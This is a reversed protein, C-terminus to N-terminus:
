ASIYVAYLHLVSNVPTLFDYPAGEPTTSWHSFVMGSPPKPNAPRDVQRGLMVSSAWTSRGNRPDFIVSRRNKEEGTTDVMSDAYMGQQLVNAISAQSAIGTTGVVGAVGLTALSSAIITAAILVADDGTFTPEDDGGQGGGAAEWHGYLQMQGGVNSGLDWETGGNPSTFWGLFTYGEMSPNEPPSLLNGGKGVGVTFPDGGNAPYFTVFFVPTEEWQAYLTMDKTVKTSFDWEEGGEAATFWGKFDYDERVPDAPKSVTGGYPISVTNTSEGDRFEVKVNTLPAPGWQGYVIMNGDGAMSPDWEYTGDENITWKTLVKGNVEGYTPIEMSGDPKWMKVAMEQGNGPIFLVVFEEGWVAYYTKDIEFEGLIDGWINVFLPDPLEASSETSWGLHRDTDSYPGGINTGDPLLIKGSELDFGVALKEFQPTGWYDDGIYDLLLYPEESSIDFYNYHEWYGSNADFLASDISVSGVDPKGLRNKGRQDTSPTDLSVMGKGDADGASMIQVTLLSIQEGWETDPLECGAYPGYPQMIEPISGFVDYCRDEDSDDINGNAALYGSAFCGAGDLITTTFADDSALFINNIARVVSTGSTQLSIPKEDWWVDMDPDYYNEYFTNNILDVESDNLFVCGTDSIMEYVWNRYFTSNVISGKAGDIYLVTNFDGVLLFYDEVWNDFFTTSLISFTIPADIIVISGVGSILSFFFCQDITMTGTGTGNINVAPGSVYAYTLEDYASTFLSNKLEISNGVSSPALDVQISHFGDRSVFTSNSISLVVKEPENCWVAHNGSDFYCNDISIKGETQSMICNDRNILVSDNLILEGEQLDIHYYPGSEFYCGDKIELVSASSIITVGSGGTFTVNDFTVIDGGGGSEIEISVGYHARDIILDRFIYKGKNNAPIKFMPEYSFSLDDSSITIRDNGRKGEIIATEGPGLVPLEETAYLVLPVGVVASDLPGNIDLTINDGPAAESETSAPDAYILVLSSVLALALATIVIKRKSM